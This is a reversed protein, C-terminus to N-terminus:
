IRYERFGAGVAAAAIRAHSAWFRAGSLGSPDRVTSCVQAVQEASTFCLVKQMACEDLAENLANAFGANHIKQYVAAACVKIGAAALAKPLDERGSQARVICVSSYQSLAELLGMSEGSESVLVTPAACGGAAQWAHITAQGVVALAKPAADFAGGRLAVALCHSATPSSLFWVESAMLDRLATASLSRPELTDIPLHTCGGWRLGSLASPLGYNLPSLPRFWLLHLPKAIEALGAQQRLM